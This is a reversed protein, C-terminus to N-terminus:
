RSSGSWAAPSWTPTSCRRAPGCGTGTAPSPTSRATTRSTATRTRWRGPRSRTPPSGPTCWRSRPRPASTPSTPSSRSCSSPPSCARTSWPGAPCARSTPAPRASPVSACWGPAGSSTWARDRRHARAPPVAADGLPRDARDPSADVPVDRWGALRLGEQAVIAEIPPSPPPRLRRRRRAPLGHRGRVRGRRGRHAAPLVVGAEGLVARLFADPMQILIGAGDGSDPEAGSAGRHELNRLATLGQEVLTHSRRGHMDAVFAVGCADRETRPDYLGQAAPLDARSLVLASESPQPRTM